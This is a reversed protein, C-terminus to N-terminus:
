MYHIHILFVNKSQGRMKLDLIVLLISMYGVTTIVAQILQDNTKTVHYVRQKAVEDLLRKITINWVPFFFTLTRLVTDCM